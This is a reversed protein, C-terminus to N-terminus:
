EHQSTNFILLMSHLLSLYLYPVFEDEKGMHICKVGGGIHSDHQSTCHSPHNEIFEHVSFLVCLFSLGSVREIRRENNDGLAAHFTLYSNYSLTTHISYYFLSM